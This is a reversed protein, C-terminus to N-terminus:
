KKIESENVEDVKGCRTCRLAFYAIGGNKLSIDVCKWKHGLWCKSM